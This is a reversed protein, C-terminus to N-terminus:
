VFSLHIDYETTLGGGLQVGIAIERTLEPHIIARCQGLIVPQLYQLLLKFNDFQICPFVPINIVTPDYSGLLGDM